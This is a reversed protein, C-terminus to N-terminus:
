FSRPPGGGFRRPDVYRRERGQATLAPTEAPSHDQLEIGASAASLRVFGRVINECFAHQGSRFGAQLLPGYSDKRLTALVNSCQNSALVPDVTQGSAQLVTAVGQYSRYIEAASRELDWSDAAAWAIHRYRETRGRTADDYARRIEVHADRVADDIAMRLHDLTIYEAATDEYVRWLLKETILHVYYPFGNAISAIRFLASRTPEQEWGLGFREIADDIIDLASQYNIRKLEIQALQRFASPHDGLIASVDSGVGTFIFTVSASRDGLLKLLEAIEATVRRDELRDVEDIVVVRRIRRGDNDLNSLMDAATAVSLGGNAPNPTRSTEGAGLFRGLGFNTTSTREAFASPKFHEMVLRMLETFTTERACGIHRFNGSGDSGSQGSTVALSTKGVGREGYIFVHRGPAHMAIEVDRMQDARGKLHRSTEIPRSHSVVSNLADAFQRKHLGHMKPIVPAAAM